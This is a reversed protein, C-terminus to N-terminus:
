YIELEKLIALTKEAAASGTAKAGQLHCAFYYNGKNTEMSGLFWGTSTTVSNGTGTKGYLRYEPQTQLHIAEKVFAVNDTSFSLKGELLKRFLDVQEFPSIKLSSELWYNDIGGLLNMNGYNISRFNEKLKTKGLESDLQQFYWNTSNTLATQLNQDHNWSDIPYDTGDWARVNNARDIKQADLAFLASWIKYTSDPSYRKHGAAQNYTLYRDKSEDYIVLSNNENQDFLPDSKQEVLPEQRSFQDTEDTRAQPVILFIGVVLAIVAMFKAALKKNASPQFSSICEIRRTLEERKGSFGLLYSNQNKQAYDLLTTGYFFVDEENLLRMVSQDCSIERDSRAQKVILYSVPNFWNLISLGFLLNNQVTDRNRQHVLEHLLIFFLQENLAKAIFNNPLIITPPFVGFTAPSDVGDSQLLVLGKRSYGLCNEAKALQKQVRQDDVQVAARIMKRFKSYSYIARVLFIVVGISWVAAMSWLFISGFDNAPLANDNMWGSATEGMFSQANDLHLSTPLARGPMVSQMRYYILDKFGTLLQNPIFFFVTLGALNWYKGQYIPSLQKDLLRRLIFLLILYLNASVINLLFHTM